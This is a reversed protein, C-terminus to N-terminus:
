RHPHTRAARRCRRRAAANIRTFFSIHWSSGYAFRRTFRLEASFNHRLNYGARWLGVSRPETRLLKQHISGKLLLRRSQATSAERSQAAVLAAALAPVCLTTRPTTAAGTKESGRVTQRENQKRCAERLPTSPWSSDARRKLTRWSLPRGSKTQRAIQTWHHSFGM